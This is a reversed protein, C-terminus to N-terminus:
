NFSFSKKDGYFTGTDNKAYARVYYTTNKVLNEASCSFTGSGNGINPIHTANRFNSYTSICIGRETVSVGSNIEITGEILSTTASTNSIKKIVISKFQNTNFLITSGYGPGASNIAYARIYYVFGAEIDFITDTFLAKSFNMMTKSGKVSPNEAKSWCLGSYTAISGCFNNIKGGGIIQLKPSIIASLETTTILVPLIDRESEGKNCSQNFLLFISIFSFITVKRIASM